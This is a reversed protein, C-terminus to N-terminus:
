DALRSVDHEEVLFDRLWQKVSDPADLMASVGEELDAGVQPEYDQIIEAGQERFEPSGTFDSAATELAEVRGEPAGDRVWLVKQISYGAAALTKYAEWADGSPADGHLEEYVEHITPLDPFAPDRVLEGGQIQGMTFLPIADGAEVMPEVASKYASAFQMDINTEGQEFAVRAASRGEYGLVSKVDLELLEFAVLPTLDTATAGIGGYTLQVDPNALDSVTSVGTDPSVYMVAGEPFGVIPTFDALDYQVAPDGLLYPFHISDASMLLTTGDPDGKTAFENTGAMGAAGEVNRVQVSPESELSKSLFPSVFRAITDTGGGASFPVIIELSEGEYNAQDGQGGAPSMEGGCASLALLASASLAVGRSRANGRPFSRSM